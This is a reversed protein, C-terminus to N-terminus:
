DWAFGVNLAAQYQQIKQSAPLPTISKESTEAQWTTPLTLQALEPTPAYEISRLKSRYISYISM